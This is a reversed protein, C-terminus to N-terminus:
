ESRSHIDRRSEKLINLEFFSERLDNPISERDDIELALYKCIRRSKKVFDKIYQNNELPRMLRFAKVLQQPLRKYDKGQYLMFTLAICTIFEYYKSGPNLHEDPVLEMLDEMGWTLDVQELRTGTFDLFEDYYKGDPYTVWRYTGLNAVDGLEPAHEATEFIDICTVITLSNGKEPYQFFFVQKRLKFGLEDFSFGGLDQPDSELITKLCEKCSQLATEVLNQSKTLELIQERTAELPHNKYPDEWPTLVEDNPIPKNEMM